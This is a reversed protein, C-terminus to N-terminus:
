SIYKRTHSHDTLKRGRSRASILGLWSPLLLNQLNNRFLLQQKITAIHYFLLLARFCVPCLVVEPSKWFFAFIKQQEWGEPSSAASHLSTVTPVKAKVKELAFAPLSCRNCYVQLLEEAEHVAVPFHQGSFRDCGFSNKRESMTSCLLEYHWTHKNRNSVANRFTKRNQKTTRLLGTCQASHSPVEM